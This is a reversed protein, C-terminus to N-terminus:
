KSFPLGMHIQRFLTSSAGHLSIIGHGRAFTIASSLTMGHFETFSCKCLGSDPDDAILTEPQLTPSASLSPRDIHLGASLQRAM